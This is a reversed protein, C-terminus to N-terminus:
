KAQTELEELRAPSLGAENNLYRAFRLIPDRQRWEDLEAPDRLDTTTAASHQTIRYSKAEILTPGEGSRARTVAEETVARMELVDNGDVLVGPFGYAAARDAIDRIRMAAAVADLDGV